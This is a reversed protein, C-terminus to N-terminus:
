KKRKKRFQHVKYGLSLLLTMVILYGPVAQSSLSCGGFPTGSGELNDPAIVEPEEIQAQFDPDCVNGITDNDVDAQDPNFVTPCNDNCGAIGDADSDVDSEGCGCIGAEIKNEDEPCDDNCDAFGDGDSDAPPVLESATCDPEDDPCETAYYITYTPADPANM